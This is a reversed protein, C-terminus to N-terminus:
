SFGMDTFTLNEETANVEMNDRFMKLCKKTEDSARKALMRLPSSLLFFTYFSWFASLSSIVTKHTWLQRDYLRQKEM